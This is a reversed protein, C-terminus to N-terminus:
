QKVVLGKAHLEYESVPETIAAIEEASKEDDEAYHRLEEVTTITKFAAGEVVVTKGIMEVPVFFDHNTNIFMEEGEETAIRLWCGAKKCVESVTGEVKMEVAKVVNGEGMDLDVAEEGSEVKAIADTLGISNDQTIEAGFHVGDGEAEVNGDEHNHDHDHGEHGHDHGEHDHDHGEHSHHENDNDATTTSAEGGCAALTYALLAIYIIRLM